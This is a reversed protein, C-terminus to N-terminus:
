VYVCMFVYIYIYTDMLEGDQKPWSFAQPCQAAVPAQRM